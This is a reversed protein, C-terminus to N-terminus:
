RAMADLRTQVEQPSLAMPSQILWEHGFPDRVRGARAGYAQDEVPFVVEAGAALAAGAVDDPADCTIELIVGPRGLMSPSPDVGDAEKLSVTSGFLDLSAFVVTQEITYRETCRAAFARRYFDIAADADTVVLKPALSTGPPVAPASDNTTQSM